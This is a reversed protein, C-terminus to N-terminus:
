QNVGDLNNLFLSDTDGYLTPYGLETAISQMKILTDRGFATVLEAVGPDYYKFYQHGFVGYGSNIIAKIAELIV